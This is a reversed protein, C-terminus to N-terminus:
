NAQRPNQELWERTWNELNLMLRARQMDEMQRCLEVYDYDTTHAPQEALSDREAAVRQDLDAFDNPRLRQLQKQWPQWAAIFKIHEGRSEHQAILALANLKDDDSFHAHSGYLMTRSVGILNLEEAVLTTAGHIVEIEDLQQGLTPRLAAIKRQAVDGLIQIRFQSTRIDILDQASHQGHEAEHEIRAMDLNDLTLGIRDGCSTTADEVLLFCQQRLETSHEIANLLQAVRKTYEPRQQPTRCAATTQLNAVFQRFEDAHPERSIANWAELRADRTIRDTNSYWHEIERVLPNALLRRLATRQRTLAETSQTAPQTASPTAFQEASGAAQDARPADRQNFQRRSARRRQALSPNALAIITQSKAVDFRHQFAAKKDPSWTADFSNAISTRIDVILHVLDTALRRQLDANNGAEILAIITDVNDHIGSELYRKVPYTPGFFNDHRIDLAHLVSVMELMLSQRAAIELPTGGHSPDANVHAGRRILTRVVESQTPRTAAVQLPTTQAPDAPEVPAGYDIFADIMAPHPNIMAALQLVSNERPHSPQIHAGARMLVDIVEPNSALAAAWGIPTQATESNASVRAGHDLLLKVLAPNNSFAVALHLPTVTDDDNWWVKVDDILRAVESRQQTYRAIEPTTRTNFANVEVGNDLLATISPLKGDMVARHLLRDGDPGPLELDAGARKLEPILTAAAAPNFLITYEAPTAWDDTNVNAGRAILTSAIQTNRTNACAAALPTWTTPGAGEIQAGNDLLTTIVDTNDSFAAAWHLPSDQARNRLNPDAGAELLTRLLHPDHAFAAAFHLPTADDVGEWRWGPRQMDALAIPPVANAGITPKTLTNFVNVDVGQALLTEVSAVQNRIVLRHLFTNGDGDRLELDAGEAKLAAAIAAADHMPNELAVEVLTKGHNDTANIGGRHAILSAFSVRPQTNLWTDLVPQLNSIAQQRGAVAMLRGRGATAQLAAQRNPSLAAVDAVDALRIPAPEPLAREAHAALAADPPASSRSTNTINPFAM